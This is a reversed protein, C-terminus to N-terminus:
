LDLLKVLGAETMFYNWKKNTLTLTVINKITTAGEETRGVCNALVLVAKTLAPNYCSLATEKTVCIQDIKSPPPLKNRRFTPNYRCTHGNNRSWLNFVCCM